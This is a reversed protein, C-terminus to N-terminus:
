PAAAAARRAREALEVVATRVHAREHAPAAFPVVVERTGEPTRVRLRLMGSDVGVAEAGEAAPVGGLTRAILLCDPAHDDNLHRCVATVIDQAFSTM